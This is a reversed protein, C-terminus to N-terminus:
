GGHHRAIRIGFGINLGGFGIVLLPNSMAEPLVLAAIGLGIFCAGLVPVVRVSFAGATMVATGYLLLWTAPVLSEAGRTMLAWTLVAGVVMPPALNRVFRRGPGKDLSLGAGRAKLWMAGGGMLAAVPCAALWVVLLRGELAPLAAVVGAVLAVGGMAIGGVGPVATFAASTALTDRIFALNDAARAEIPIPDPTAPPVSHAM